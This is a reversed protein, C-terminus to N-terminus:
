SRAQQLARELQEKKWRWGEQEVEIKRDLAARAKGIDEVKRQHARAAEELAAEAVAIARERRERERERVAKEKQAQRQRRKQERQFSLVAKRATQEDIPNAASERRPKSREAPSRGAIGAAFDSPLAAHETFAVDTGVPRRLVVGPKAMTAAVIKPDDTEKAFGQQFLNRNSGWAELAAKMSPAAVALDFFGAPTTYAKLKRPMTRAGPLSTACTRITDSPHRGLQQLRQGSVYGARNICDVGNTM